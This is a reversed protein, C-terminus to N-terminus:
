KLSIEKGDIFMRTDRDIQRYEKWEGKKNKRWFDTSKSMTSFDVIRGDALALKGKTTSVVELVYNGGAVTVKEITSAVESVEKIATYFVKVRELTQKKDLIEKGSEITYGEDLYKEIVIIDLKKTAEDFERYIKTLQAVDKKDVKKNQASAALNLGFFVCLSIIVSFLKKM